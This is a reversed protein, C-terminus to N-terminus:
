AQGGMPAPTKGIFREAVMEIFKAGLFSAVLVAVLKSYVDVEARQMMLFALTGAMWAGLMHASCFVWPRALPTGPAAAALERDIRLLLATAGSMTSLVMSLLVVLLSVSAGKEIEIVMTAAMVLSPCALFLVLM